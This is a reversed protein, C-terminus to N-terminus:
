HPIKFMGDKKAYAKGYTMDYELLRYDKYVRSQDWKANKPGHVNKATLAYTDNSVKTQNQQGTGSIQLPKTLVPVQQQLQELLQYFPTQPYNLQQLLQLSMYNPSFYNYHHTQLPFNAAMVFPTAHSYLTNQNFLDDYIGDGPYHDGYMVILTKQKVHQYHQVLHKFAQDSDHVEQLYAELKKTKDADGAVKNQLQYSSKPGIEAQYPMHNQMTLMLSFQRSSKKQQAYFNPYSSADTDYLGHPSKKLGRLKAQDQFKHIGIAPYAQNRRYMTGAYPHYAQSNYGADNLYHMVSPFYKKNPLIDQYPTNNLFYNSFGTNAEFEINATGGGFGPSVMYGGAQQATPNTIMKSIYPMPNKNDVLPYWKQTRLPNTLSENLIYIVNVKGVKKGQNAKVLGKQYRQTIQKMTAASYNAPKIMPTSHANFVFGILTGRNRYNALQSRDVNTINHKALQKSAFSRTNGAQSFLSLAVIALVLFSIRLPWLVRHNKLWLGKTVKHLLYAAVLLLVIGVVLLLLSQWSVMKILGGAQGAMSLDNPLLPESRSIIKNFDVYLIISFIIVSLSIGWWYDGLLAILMTIIIVLFFWNIRTVVPNNKIEWFMEHYGHTLSGTLALQFEFYFGYAILCVLLVQLLFYMFRKVTLNHM